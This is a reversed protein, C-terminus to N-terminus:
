VAVRVTVASFPPVTVSGDFAGRKETLTVKDPEEYTNHAHPDDATFLTYDAERAAELGSLVLQAEASETVKKGSPRKKGPPTERIEDMDDYYDFDDYGDDFPYVDRFRIDLLTSGSLVAYDLDDSDCTIIVDCGTETKEMKVGLIKPATRDIRIQLGEDYVQGQTGPIDPVATVVLTYTGDAIDADDFFASIMDMDYFTSKKVYEETHSACVNGNADQLAFTLSKLNRLASCGNGVFYAYGWYMQYIDGIKVAPVAEWDGRFGMFPINLPTQGTMSDTLYVYGEVYFGNTFVEANEALEAADLQLTCTVTHTEGPRLSISRPMDSQAVTYSLPVSQGTIRTQMYYTGTMEDFVRDQAYGDTIVDFNLTDYRVTDKSTNKVTFSLKVTDDIQDGVSIATRENEGVLVANASVAESLNVLGAGVARPSMPVDDLMVPDATSCLLSEKLDAKERGQVDPNKKQLAQELLAASGAVHPSAMSTGDYIDYSGGTVSSYIIGGPAAIDVTLELDESVGYSTFDSSRLIDAPQVYYQGYTLAYTRSSNHYLRYADLDGVVLIEVDDLDYIVLQNAILVSESLIIAKSRTKSISTSGSPKTM